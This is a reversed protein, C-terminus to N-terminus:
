RLEEYGLVDVDAGNGAAPSGGTHKYQFARSASLPFLEAHGAGVRAKSLVATTGAESNTVYLYNGGRCELALLGRTTTPPVVAACSVDASYTSGQRGDSLVRFPAVTQDLLYRVVDGSWEFRHIAGTAGTRVSRIFRRSADGSKSRAEGRYPTTPGTTVLEVDATGANEFLYPYYWTDAALSLGSKTLDASLELTRGLGEVYAAGAKITISTTSNWVVELGEIFAMNTGSSAAGTADGLSNFTVNPQTYTGAAVGSATRSLDSTVPNISLGSSSAVKLAEGYSDRHFNLVTVGLNPSVSNAFFYVSGREANGERAKFEMGSVFEAATDFSTHRAWAGGASVTYVGNAAADNQATLLVEDAEATAVGDITPTGTPEVHSTAVLRVSFTPPLAPM